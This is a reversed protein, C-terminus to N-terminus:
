LRGQGRLARVDTLVTAAHGRAKVRPYARVVVGEPSVVLTSREHSGTQDAKLTGYAAGVARDADSGLLFQLGYKDRFRELRSVPDVSIGVVSVGLAEFEPLLAKFELAEATCGSTLARPYFYLVVPGQDLLVALDVATPVGPIQFRPVQEGERLM